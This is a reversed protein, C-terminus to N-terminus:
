WGAADRVVWAVVELEVRTQEFGVATLVSALEPDTYWVREEASYDPLPQM